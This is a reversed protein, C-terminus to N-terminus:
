TGHIALNVGRSSVSFCQNEQLLSLERNKLGEILTNLEISTNVDM